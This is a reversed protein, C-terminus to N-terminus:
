QVTSWLCSDSADRGLGELRKQMMWAGWKDSPKMHRGLGQYLCFKITLAMQLQLSAM